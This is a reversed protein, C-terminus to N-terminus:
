KRVRLGPFPFSMGIAGDNYLKLLLIPLEKSATLSILRLYITTSLYIVILFLPIFDEISKPTEKLYKITWVACVILLLFLFMGFIDGFFVFEGSNWSWLFNALITALCLLSLKRLRKTQRM